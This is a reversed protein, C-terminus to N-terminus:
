QRKIKLIAYAAATRLDAAEPSDAEYIGSSFANNLLSELLPLDSETGNKALAHAISIRDAASRSKYDTILASRIKSFLESQTASAPKTIFATTILNFKVSSSDPESLAMASFDQWQQADIGIKRLIYSSILRIVENSDITAMEIFELRNKDLVEPSAYFIAWLTYVQLNRNENALANQTAEPYKELPSVKLKALTESAHLRDPGNMDGFADLVKNEWKMKGERSEETQALVRWIGIRYKPQDGYLENEKLFIKRAEETHGLWILYEAAHVKIFESQNNLVSNLENLAQEKLPDKMNCSIFLSAIICGIFCFSYITSKNFLSRKSKWM